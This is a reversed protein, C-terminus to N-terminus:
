PLLGKLRALLDATGPIGVCVLAVGAAFVWSRHELVVRENALSVLPRSVIPWAARHLLMALAFVALLACVTIDLVNSEAILRPLVQREDIPKHLYWLVPAAFVAGGLLCTGVFMLLARGGSELGEVRRLLWRIAGICLLDSLVTALITTAVAATETWFSPLLPRYQRHMFRGDQLVWERQQESYPNFLLTRVRFLVWCAMAASLAVLMTRVRPRRNAFGLGAVLLAATMWEAGWLSVSGNGLYARVMGRTIRLADEYSVDYTDFFREVVDRADYQCRGWDFFMLVAFSSLISLVVVRVSLLGQGLLTDLGSTFTKSVVRVFAVHKALGARSVDEIKVWLTELRDQVGEKESPHTFIALYILLAGVVIPIARWGDARLTM